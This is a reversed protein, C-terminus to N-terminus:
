QRSRSSSLAADRASRYINHNSVASRNDPSEGDRGDPTAIYFKHIQKNEDTIRALAESISIPARDLM